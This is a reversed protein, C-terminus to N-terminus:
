QGGPLCQSYLERIAAAFREPSFRERISLAARAGIPDDLPRSALDEIADALAEADNPPVVLGTVGDEVIEPLGGAASVVTRRGLAMAEAAVLGFAEPWVTPVAVVDWAKMLQPIDSRYGTITVRGALPEAAAMARLCDLYPQDDPHALSGVIYFHASPLREVLRVAASLFVDQGKLPVILGVVGIHPGPGVIDPAAKVDDALFSPDVANYVIRIRDEPLGIEGALRRVAQSVCVFATVIPAAYRWALRHYLTPPTAEHLHCIVPLSLAKAANVAYMASIPGHVHILSIRHKRCIRTVSAGEHRLGAVYGLLKAPNRTRQMATFNCPEVPIGMARAEDPLRGEGPCALVPRLGMEQATRMCLLLIRATGGLVANREIYLVGPSSESTAGEDTAAM